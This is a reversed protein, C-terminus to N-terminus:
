RCNQLVPIIAGQYKELIFSRMKDSLMATKLAQLRPDNEDGTRIAIINVYPSEAGELALADKTPNLKAQLAFNTPIVAAAVEGIVRPLLAADIEEIKLQKPNHTINLVTAHKAQNIQILGERQLLALARYENTPDNPIAIKDGKKLDALSTIKKSYIGMPEIHIKAFCDIKYHFAEKQQELFPIHQFFNADVEKESLARNPINYDDVVMVQLDIGQEKLDPQVFELMEAHPVATAAVKLKKGSEKSCSCFLSVVFLLLLFGIQGGSKSALASVSNDLQLDGSSALPTSSDRLSSPPAASPCHLTNERSPHPVLQTLENM